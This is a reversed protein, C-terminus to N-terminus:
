QDRITIYSGSVNNININPVGCKGNNVVLDIDENAKNSLNLGQFRPADSSFKISLDLKSCNSINISPCNKGTKAGGAANGYPQCEQGNVVVSLELRSNM